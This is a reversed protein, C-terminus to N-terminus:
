EQDPFVVQAKRYEFPSMNMTKKFAAAFKSSNDYGVKGAIVAVNETSQRLMLAAAQMRYNRIFAYVSTGYVGKFCLKLATLSIKFRAALEELTFRKDINATLYHALAKVTEVQKGSFYSQKESNARIDAVSLFLLLELVKLRFYYLKIGDPMTYLESFIREAVNNKHLTVPHKGSCFKKWLVQLDVPFGGLVTKLTKVADEVYLAVSVGHFHNLPFGFGRVHNEKTHIQLDGQQLYLYSGDQLVWEIRGERCYDIGILAVKPQFESFCCQMHFDNFILDIGPFVKYSTMVGEGTTDKMRYVTCNEDQKIIAINEGYIARADALKKM